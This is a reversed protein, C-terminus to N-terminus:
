PTTKCVENSASSVNPVGDFAKIVYCYQTASNLNTDAFSTTIATGIITYAGLSASARYIYYGSVGVNDTAAGWSLSIQTSSSVTGTLTGPASPVENDTFGGPITTTTANPSHLSENGAADLATVSYTYTTASTLNNLDTYVTTVTTTTALKNSDRYIAYGTVGVNDTAATWRVSVKTSSAAVATLSAPATPATTDAPTSDSSKSGCGSILLVATLAALLQIKCFFKDKRM